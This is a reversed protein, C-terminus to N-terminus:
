YLATSKNYVPTYMLLENEKFAHTDLNISPDINAAPKILGLLVFELYIAKEGGKVLSVSGRNICCLTNEPFNARQITLESKQDGFFGREVWIKESGKTENDQFLILMQLKLQQDKNTAEQSLYLM